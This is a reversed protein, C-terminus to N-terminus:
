YGAPISLKRRGRHIINGSCVPCTGKGFFVNHIKCHGEGGTPQVDSVSVLITEAEIFDPLNELLFPIELWGYGSHFQVLGSDKAAAGFIKQATLQSIGLDAAIWSRFASMKEPYVRGWVGFDAPNDLEM